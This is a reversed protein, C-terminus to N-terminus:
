VVSKRDSKAFIPFNAKFNDQVFKKIESESGSEQNFFENSPFALIEFGRSSLENHMKVMEKYNPSTLGWKCAVNVVMIVKKDQYKHFDVIKGDIDKASLDFFNKPVETSIKNSGGKFIAKSILKGMWIYIIILINIVWIFLSIPNIM